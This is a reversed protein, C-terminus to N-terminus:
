NKLKKKQKDFYEVRSVFIGAVEQISKFVEARFQQSPTIILNQKEWTIAQFTISEPLIVRKITVAEFLRGQISVAYGGEIKQIMLLLNFYPLPPGPEDQVFSTEMDAKELAGLIIARAEEQSFPLQVDDSKIIDVNVYLKNTLNLLHDSGVWGAGGSGVIGPLTYSISPPPPLGSGQEGTEQAQLSLGTLFLASFTLRTLLPRM